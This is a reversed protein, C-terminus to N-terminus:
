LLFPLHGMMADAALVLSRTSTRLGADTAVLRDTARGALMSYEDRRWYHVCFCSAVMYTGAGAQLLEINTVVHVARGPPRAAWWDREIMKVRNELAKRDDHIVFVPARDQGAFELNEQTVLSYIAQQTFSELWEAYRREDLLRAQKFLLQSADRVVDEQGLQERIM